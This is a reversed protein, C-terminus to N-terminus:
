TCINEWQKKHKFQVLFSGLIFSNWWFCYLIYFDWHLNLVFELGAPSDM